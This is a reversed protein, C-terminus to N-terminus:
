SGDSRARNDTPTTTALARLLGNGEPELRSVRYTEGTATATVESPYPLADVTGDSLPVDEDVYIVVDIDVNRLWPEGTNDLSAPDIQGRVTLPSDGTPQKETPDDFEDPATTTDVAEYNTIALDDGFFEDFQADFAQIQDGINSM